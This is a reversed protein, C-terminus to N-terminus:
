KVLEEAQRLLDSLNGIGFQNATNRGGNTAIAIIEQGITRAINTALQEDNVGVIQWTEGNRKM